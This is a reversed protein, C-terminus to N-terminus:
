KVSSLILSKKDASHQFVGTGNREAATQLDASVVVPIANFYTWAGTSNDLLAMGEVQLPLEFRTGDPVAEKKQVRELKFRISSADQAPNEVKQQSVELTYVYGWEYELGQIDDYFYEWETQGQMKVLYCLQTSEGQCPVRYHQITMIENKTAPDSCQFAAALFLVWVFCVYGRSMM